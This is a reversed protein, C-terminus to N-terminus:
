GNGNKTKTAIPLENTLTVKRFAKASTSLFLGTRSRKCVQIIKQFRKM